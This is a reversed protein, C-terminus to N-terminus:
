RIPEGTEYIRKSDPTVTLDAELYMSCATVEELTHACSVIVSSALNDQAPIAFGSCFTVKHEQGLDVVHTLLVVGTDDSDFDIRRDSLPSPEYPLTTDLVKHAVSEYQQLLQSLSAHGVSESRFVTLAHSDIPHCIPKPEEQHGVIRIKDVAYALTRHSLRPLLSSNQKSLPVRFM